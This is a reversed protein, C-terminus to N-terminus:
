PVRARPFMRQMALRSAMTWRQFVVSTARSPSTRARRGSALKRALKGVDMAARTSTPSADGHLLPEDAGESFLPKRVLEDREVV